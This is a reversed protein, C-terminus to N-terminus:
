SVMKPVRRKVEEFMLQLKQVCIFARLNLWGFFFFVLPCSKKLVDPLNSRFFRSLKITVNHLPGAPVFSVQVTFVTLIFAVVISRLFVTTGPM